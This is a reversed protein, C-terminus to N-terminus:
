KLYLYVKASNSLTVYVGKGNVINMDHDSWNASGSQAWLSVGGSATGSTVTATGSSSGIYKISRVFVPGIVALTATCYVVNSNNSGAM